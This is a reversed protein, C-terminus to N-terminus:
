RDASERHRGTDRTVLAPCRPSLKANLPDQSPHTDTTAPGATGPDTRAPNKGVLGVRALGVAGVQTSEPDAPHNGFAGVLDASDARGDAGQFLLEYAFVNLDKDFIPQRAVSIDSM